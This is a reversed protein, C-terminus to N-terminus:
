ISGVIVARANQRNLPVPVQTTALASKTNVLGSSM